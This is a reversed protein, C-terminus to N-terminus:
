FGSEIAGKRGATMRTRSVFGEILRKNPVRPTLNLHAFISCGPISRLPNSQNQTPKQSFRHADSSALTTIMARRWSCRPRHFTLALPPLRATAGKPQANAAREKLYGLPYSLYPVRPHRPFSYITLTSVRVQRHSIRM